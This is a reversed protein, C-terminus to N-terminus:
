GYVRLRGAWFRIESRLIAEFVVEYLYILKYAAYIYINYTSYM